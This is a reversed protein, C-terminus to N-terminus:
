RTGPVKLKPATSYVGEAELETDITGAIAELRNLVTNEIGLYDEKGQYSNSEDIFAGSTENSQGSQDAIGTLNGIISQVPMMMGGEIRPDMGGFLSRMSEEFAKDKGPEKNSVVDLLTLVQMFSNLVKEMANKNEALSSEDNAKREALMEDVIKDLKNDLEKDPIKKSDPTLKYMMDFLKHLEDKLEKKFLKKFNEKDPVSEFLKSYDFKADPNKSAVVESVLAVMLGKKFEPTHLKEATVDKGITKVISEIIEDKNQVNTVMGQQQMKKLLLELTKRLEDRGFAAM